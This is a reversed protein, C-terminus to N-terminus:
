FIRLKKSHVYLSGQLSYLTALNLSKVNNKKYFLPCLKFYTFIELMDLNVTLDFSNRVFICIYWDVDVLHLFSESLFYM